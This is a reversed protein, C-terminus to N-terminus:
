ISESGMRKDGDAFSSGQDLGDMDGVRVAAFGQKGHDVRWEGM